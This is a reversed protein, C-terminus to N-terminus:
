GHEKEVYCICHYDSVFAPYYKPDGVVKYWHGDILILGNELNLKYDKHIAVSYSIKHGELRTGDSLIDKGFEPRILAKQITHEEYSYIPKNFDDKGVPEKIIKVKIEQWFRKFSDNAM